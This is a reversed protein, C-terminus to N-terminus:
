KSDYIGCLINIMKEKSSSQPPNDIYECNQSIYTSFEDPDNIIEYFDSIYKMSTKRFWKDLFSANELMSLIANKKQNFLKMTQEYDYYKKKPKCSSKFFRDRVNIIPLQPSPMAYPANIFGAGDFDFPIPILKDDSLSILDVNHRHQIWWDTNGIMFQFVTFIDVAYSECSDGSWIKKDSITGGIRKALQDDDEIFFGSKSVAPIEQNIDKYVVNFM